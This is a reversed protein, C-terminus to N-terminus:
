LNPKLLCGRGKSCVGIWGSAGKGMCVEIWGSGWKGMCVSGGKGMCWDM